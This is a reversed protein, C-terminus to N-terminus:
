GCLDHRDDRRCIGIPPRGGDAMGIDRLIHPSLRDMPEPRRRRSRAALRRLARVLARVLAHAPRSTADTLISRPLTASM